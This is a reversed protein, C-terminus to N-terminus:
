RDSTNGRFITYQPLCDGQNFRSQQADDEQQGSMLPVLSLLELIEVCTTVRALDDRAKPNREIIYVVQDKRLDDLMCRGGEIWCNNATDGDCLTSSPGGCTDIEDSM